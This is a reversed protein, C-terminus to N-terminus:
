FIEFLLHIRCLVEISSIGSQDFLRYLFKKGRGTSGYGSSISSASAALPMLSHISRYDNLCFILLEHIYYERFFSFYKCSDRGFLIAM